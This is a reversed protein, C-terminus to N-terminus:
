VLEFLPQLLCGCEEVGVNAVQELGFSHQHILPEEALQEAIQDFDVHAHLRRLFDDIFDTAREVGTADFSRLNDLQDFDLQLREQGLRDDGPWKAEPPGVTIMTHPTFPHPM